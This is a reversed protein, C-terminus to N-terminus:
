FILSFHSLLNTLPEDNRVIDTDFVYVVQNLKASTGFFESIIGDPDIVVDQM